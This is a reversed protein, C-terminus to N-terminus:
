AILLMVIIGSLMGPATLFLSGEYKAPVPSKASIAASTIRLPMTMIL